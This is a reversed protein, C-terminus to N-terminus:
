GDVVARRAEISGGGGSLGRQVGRPPHGQFSAQAADDAQQHHPRPHQVTFGMRRLADWGRQPRISRGLLERMWLAVKPGSWLGGDPAAGELVVSLAQREEVGLLPRKGRNEHRLDAVGSQPAANFRRVTRQVWQAKRGTVEAVADSSRGQATLWIAQWRTREISDEADLYRTRLEDVSLHPKVEIRKPM